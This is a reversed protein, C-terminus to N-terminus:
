NTNNSKDILLFTIFKFYWNLFKPNIVNNKSIFIIHTYIADSFLYCNILCGLHSLFINLFAIM